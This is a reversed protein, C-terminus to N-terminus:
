EKLRIWINILIVVITYSLISGFVISIIPQIGFYLFIPMPSFTITGIVLIVLFTLADKLGLKTGEKAAEKWSIDEDNM